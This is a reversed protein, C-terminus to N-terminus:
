IKANKMPKISNQTDVRHWSQLLSAIIFLDIGELEIYYSIGQNAADNLTVPFPKLLSM